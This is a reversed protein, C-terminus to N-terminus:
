GFRNQGPTGPMILLILLWIGGIFPIIAVWYWWGSKDTDHLRRVTVSIMPLILALFAVLLIFGWLWFAGGVDEGSGPIATLLLIYPVLFIIWTFLYFWWFEARTSRGSFNAYNAFANKIADPFSVM